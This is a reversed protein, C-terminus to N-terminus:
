LSVSFLLDRVYNQSFFTFFHTTFNSFFLLTLFPRSPFVPMPPPPSIQGLNRMQDGLSLTDVKSPEKGDFAILQQRLSILTHVDPLSKM